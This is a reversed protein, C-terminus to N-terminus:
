KIQKIDINAPIGQPYRAFMKLQEYSLSHNDYSFLKRMRTTVILNVPLTILFFLGHSITSLGFVPVTWGFGKPNAFVLTYSEILTLPAITVKKNYITDKLIILNKNYVVILEGKVKTGNILKVNIFSGYQNIAIADSKPLYIPTYCASFVLAILVLIIFIKSKM